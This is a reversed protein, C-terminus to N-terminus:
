REEKDTLLAILELLAGKTEATTEGLLGAIEQAVQMQKTIIETAKQMTQAKVKEADRVRKEHESIDEIIAILLGHKPVSLITQEIVLGFQPYEVRKGMIKTGTRAVELFDSCDFIKNLNMGISFETVRSFMAVAAPNYQQIQCQHDMVLLAHLSHDVIINAFSEAKARMYPICMEVEAIGQFVAIAKDRCSNYGCAGCNKEDQKTYKNTMHLIRTIEESNPIKEALPVIEHTQSFDFNSEECTYRNIAGTRCYEIVKVRKAALSLLSGNAPGNICGGRCALAEVFRPAIAGTQLAEFVELCQDIGDVAIVQIDMEDHEAFSKIIGGVLPFYRDKQYAVGDFTVASDHFISRAKINSLWEKLQEFTLAADIYHQGQQEKLKAICPGAFVVFAANGYKRKLIQGHAVMPSVVDALYSIIKPYYRSITNVVVPCCASIIATSSTSLLNRYHQSVIEAGIATEEVATFGLVRLRLVLQELSYESFAAIFSPAISLVVQKGAAIAAKVKALQNEVVKAKQPCETVCRGCLICKDEIVKAHSKEIGIAKVPCARVCRHCDQCNVRQTTITTM